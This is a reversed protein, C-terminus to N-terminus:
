NPTTPAHIAMPLGTADTPPSTPISELPHTASAALALADIVDDRAVDKRYTRELTERYVVRPDGTPFVECLLELRQKRGSKSSKSTSLPEGAFARFALEPHAELVQQRADSNEQLVTDVERIKPVLNWAQISLGYGSKEKNMASAREHSSADLVARVPAFFVTAARPGMLERAVSDCTRRGTEPLGIPMDVLIRDADISDALRWVASFSDTIEISLAESTNCACVWGTRCGDVGM